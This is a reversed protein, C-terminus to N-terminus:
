FPLALALPPVVHVPSRLHLSTFFRIKCNCVPEGSVRIPQFDPFFRKNGEIPGFPPLTAISEAAKTGGNGLTHTSLRNKDGDML